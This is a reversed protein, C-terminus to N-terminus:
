RLQVLRTDGGSFCESGSENCLLVFASVQAKGRRFREEDFTQIRALQVHPRGDCTVSLFFGEGFGVTNEQSGTVGAELLPPTPDCRVLARVEAVAGGDLLQGSGLLKVEVPERAGVATAATGITAGLILVTLLVVVTRGTLVPLKPQQM